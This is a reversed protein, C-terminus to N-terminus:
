RIILAHRQTSGDKLRVELLYVGSPLAAIDLTLAFCQTQVHKVTEGQLNYLWLADLPQLVSSVQLEDQAPNPFVRVVDNNANTVIGVPKILELWTSHLLFQLSDLGQAEALTVEPAVDNNLKWKDVYVAYDGASLDNFRFYGNADTQQWAVPQLSANVLVIDVGEVPDGVERGAGQSVIGGIFGPGGPNIGPLVVHTYQLTDCYQPTMFDGSQVVAQGDHYTPILNPYVSSDPAVKVLFSDVPLQFIFDGNADTVTTDMAYVTDGTADYHILYVTSNVVAIGATDVATGTLISPHTQVTLTDRCGFGGYGYNEVLYTTTNLPALRVQTCGADLCEFNIGNQISDGSLVSWVAMSDGYGAVTDWQVFCGAITDHTGRTTRIHLSLSAVGFAPCHNDYARIICDFGYEYVTNVVACISAVAPNAGSVNISFYDAITDLNSIVYVSDVTDPDNFEVDFCITDGACAQISMSDTFFAGSLNDLSQFEPNLNTQDDYVFFQIDRYVSGKYLGTLPDWEDVRITVVYNAYTYGGPITAFFSVAGSMTDLSLGPAPQSPTYPSIYYAPDYGNIVSYLTMATDLHYTLSDGDADYMAVSFDYQTSDLFLSPLDFKFSRASTNHTTGPNMMTAQALYGPQSVLNTTSNRCCYMSYILM